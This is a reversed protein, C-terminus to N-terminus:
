AQVAGRGGGQQAASALERAAMHPGLLMQSSLPPARIPTMEAMPEADIPNVGTISDATPKAVM